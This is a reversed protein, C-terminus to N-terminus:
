AFRPSRYEVQFSEFQKITEALLSPFLSLIGTRGNAFDETTEVQWNRPQRKRKKGRATLEDPGLLELVEGRCARLRHVSILDDNSALLDVREAQEDATSRPEVLTLLTAVGGVRLSGRAM